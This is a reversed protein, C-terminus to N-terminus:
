SEAGKKSNSGEKSEKVISSSFRGRSREKVSDATVEIFIIVCTIDDIV